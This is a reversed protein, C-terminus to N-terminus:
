PGTVNFNSKTNDSMSFRISFNRGAMNNDFLINLEFSDGPELITDIIDVTTNRNESGSWVSVGDIIIENFSARPKPPTWSLRIENIVINCDTSINQVFINNLLTGGSDLGVLSTELNISNNQPTCLVLPFDRTWDTIYTFLNVEKTTGFLDYTVKSQIKKTDLNTESITIIRSFEGISDSSNELVWTGGSLSLGHDGNVLNSFDTEGLFKSVEIGEKALMWAKNSMSVNTYSNRNTEYFSFFLLTFIGFVSVAILIEVLTFGKKM